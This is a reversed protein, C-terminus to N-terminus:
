GTLILAPGEPQRSPYTMDWIMDAWAVLSVTPGPAQRRVAVILGEEVPDVAAVDVPVRWGYPVRHPLNARRVETIWEPPRLLRGLPWADLGPIPSAAPDRFLLVLWRPTMAHDRVAVYEYFEPDWLALSWFAHRAEPTALPPPAGLARAVATPPGRVLAAEPIRAIRSRAWARLAVVAVPAGPAAMDVDHDVRTCGGRYVHPTDPPLTYLALPAGDRAATVLPVATLRCCTYRPRPDGPQFRELLAGPVHAGCHWEGVNFEEMYVQGCRLCEREVLREEADAEADSM